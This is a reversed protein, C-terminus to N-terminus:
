IKQPFYGIRYTPAGGASGTGIVLGSQTHIKQTTTNITTGDEKLFAFGNKRVEEALHESVIRASQQIERQLELRQSLFMVQSYVEFASLM